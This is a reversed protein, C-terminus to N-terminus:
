LPTVVVGVFCPFPGLDFNHRKHYVVQWAPGGPTSTAFWLTANNPGPDFSPTPIPGVLQDNNVSKDFHVIFPATTRFFLRAGGNAQCHLEVDGFGPITMFRSAITGAPSVLSKTLVEGQASTGPSDAKWSIATEQERCSEKNNDIIRMGGNKSYCGHIVGNSDPIQAVITVVGSYLILVTVLVMLKSQRLFSILRRSM